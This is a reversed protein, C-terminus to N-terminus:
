ESSSSEFDRAPPFTFEGQLREVNEIAIHTPNGENDYQVTGRALVPGKYSFDQRFKDEDAGVFHYRVSKGGEARFTGDNREKNLSVLNGRLEEPKETTESVDPRFYKREESSVTAATKDEVELEAADIRGPRLPDVIKDLERDILRMRYVEYSQPSVKLEANDGNVVVVQNNNGEVHINVPQGKAHKKINIVEALLRGIREAHEWFNVVNTALQAPNQGLAVAALVLLHFSGHEPASVRLEPFLDPSIYDAAKRYAGSFGELAEVVLGIPMTGDDVEPGHYNLRLRVAQQPPEM